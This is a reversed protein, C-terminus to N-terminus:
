KRLLLIKLKNLRLHTLSAKVFLSHSIGNKLPETVIVFVPLSQPLSCSRSGCIQTEFVLRETQVHEVNSNLSIVRVHLELLHFESRM